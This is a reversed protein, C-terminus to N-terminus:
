SWITIFSILFVILCKSKLYSFDYDVFYNLSLSLSMSSPAQSEYYSSSFFISLVFFASMGEDDSTVHHSPEYAAQQIVPVNILHFTERAKRKKEQERLLTKRVHERHQITRSVAVAAFSRQLLVPPFLIIPYWQVYM